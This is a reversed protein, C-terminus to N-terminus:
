SDDDAFGNVIRRIIAAEFGRSQLFRAQRAREAANAPPAGFKRAWVAKARELEPASAAGVAAMATSKPIGRARLEQKLRLDGYRASRSRVVSAAYREESLLGRRQLEDLVGDVEAAEQGENLRRILKAALEARSYERRALLGVARKLLSTPRKARDTAAM